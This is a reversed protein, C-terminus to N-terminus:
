KPSLLSRLLTERSTQGCLLHLASHELTRLLTSRSPTAKSFFRPPAIPPGGTTMSIAYPGVNPCTTGGCNGAKSLDFPFNFFYNKDAFNGEVSKTINLNFATSPTMISETEDAASNLVRMPNFFSSPDTFSTNMTGEPGTFSANNYNGSWYGPTVTVAQVQIAAAAFFVLLLFM